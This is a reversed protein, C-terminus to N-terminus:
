ARPGRSVTACLATVEILLQEFDLPKTFTAAPEMASSDHKELGTMVIVPIHAIRADNQQARRFAWGDMEPMALDLLIVKAPIGARLLMLAEEGNPATIPAFGSLHLWNVVLGRLQPDDEVVLIAPGM